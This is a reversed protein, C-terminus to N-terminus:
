GATKQNKMNWHFWIWIKICTSVHKQTKLDSVRFGDPSSTWLEVNQSRERLRLSAASMVPPRPPLLSAAHQALLQARKRQTPFHRIFFRYIRIHTRHTRHMHQAHRSSCNWPNSIAFRSEANDRWISCNCREYTKNKSANEKSTRLQHLHQYWWTAAAMCLM